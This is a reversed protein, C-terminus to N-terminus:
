VTISDNLNRRSDKHGFEVWVWVQGLFVGRSSLGGNVLTGHWNYLLQGARIM